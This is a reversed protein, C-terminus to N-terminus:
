APQRAPQCAPLFAAICAPMSAVKIENAVNEPLMDCLLRDSNAQPTCSLCHDICQPCVPQSFVKETFLSKTLLYEQAALCCCVCVCCVASQRSAVSCAACVRRAYLESFYSTALNIVAGALVYLLM